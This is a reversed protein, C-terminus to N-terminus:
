AANLADNNMDAPMMSWSVPERSMRWNFPKHCKMGIVAVSAITADPAIAPTGNSFPNRDFSINKASVNCSDVWGPKSITTGSTAAM